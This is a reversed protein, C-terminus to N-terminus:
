GFGDGQLHHRGHEMSVQYRIKSIWTVQYGNTYTSTYPKAVANRESRVVQIANVGILGVTGPVGEGDSKINFGTAVNKLKMKAVGQSHIFPGEKRFRCPLPAFPFYLESKINHPSELNPLFLSLLIKGRLRSPVLSALFSQRGKHRQPMATFDDKKGIKSSFLQM